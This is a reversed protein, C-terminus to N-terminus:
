RKDSIMKGRIWKVNEKMTEITQQPLMDIHTITHKGLYLLMGDLAALGLGLSLSVRAMKTKHLEAHVEHKALAVEQRLLAKADSVLGGLLQTLTPEAPPPSDNV